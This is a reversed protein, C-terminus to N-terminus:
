FSLPTFYDNEIFRPPLTPIETIGPTVIIIIKCQDAPTAMCFKQTVSYILFVM